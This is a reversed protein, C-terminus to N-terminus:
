KVDICDGTSTAEGTTSPNATYQWRFCGDRSATVTTKLNGKSDSKATKVNAYSGTHTRFQLSVTQGAYGGYAKTDWNARKLTGAITIARGKTVPEPTANTTLSANRQLYFNSTYEEDDTESYVTSETKWLGAQDNSLDRPDWRTSGDFWYTDGSHGSQEMDAYEYGLNPDRYFSASALVYDFCATVRIRFTSNKPYTSGVVVVNSGVMQGYDIETRPECSAAHASAPALALGVSALTAATLTILWRRHKM